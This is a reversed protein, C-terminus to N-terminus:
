ERRPTENLRAVAESGDCPKSWNPSEGSARATTRADAHQLLARAKELSAADSAVKARLDHESFRQKVNTETLLRDM